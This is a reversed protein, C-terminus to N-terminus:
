SDREIAFVIGRMMRYGLHDYCEQMLFNDKLYLNQM